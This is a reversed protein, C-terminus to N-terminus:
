STALPLKIYAVIAINELVYGDNSGLRFLEFKAHSQKIKLIDRNGCVGENAIDRLHNNGNQRTNCLTREVRRSSHLHM